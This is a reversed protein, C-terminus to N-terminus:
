LNRIRKWFHFTLDILTASGPGNQHLRLHLAICSRSWQRNSTWCWYIKVIVCLSLTILILIKLICIRRKQSVLKTYLCCSFSFDTTLQTRLMLYLSLTVFHHNSCYNLGLSITASGKKPKFIPRRLAVTRLEKYAWDVWSIDM